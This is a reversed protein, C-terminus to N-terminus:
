PIGWDSNRPKTTRRALNMNKLYVHKDKRDSIITEHIAKNTKIGTLYCQKTELFVHSSPFM